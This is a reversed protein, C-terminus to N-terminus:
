SPERAQQRPASAVGCGAANREWVGLSRLRAIVLDQSCGAHCHVLVQGNESAGISLSPKRDKHAPCLAVWGSGCRRAGLATAIFHAQMSIVEGTM